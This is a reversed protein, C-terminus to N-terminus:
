IVSFHSNERAIWHHGQIQGQGHSEPDYTTLFMYKFSIRCKKGRFHFSRFDNEITFNEARKM